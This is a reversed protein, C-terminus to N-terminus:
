KKSKIRVSLGPAAEDAARQWIAKRGEVKLRAAARVKGYAEHNARLVRLKERDAAPFISELQTELELDLNEAFRELLEAYNLAAQGLYEIALDDCDEMLSLDDVILSLCEVAREYREAAFHGRAARILELVGETSAQRNRGPPAPRFLVLQRSTAIRAALKLASDFVKGKWAGQEIAAYLEEMCERYALRESQSPLFVVDCVSLNVGKFEVTGANFFDFLSLGDMPSAGNKSKIKQVVHSTVLIRNREPSIKNAMSQLRAAANVIDGSIDGDRTILLSSYKQGGAIGASIQFVPLPVSAGLGEDRHGASLYEVLRLVAELVDSASAGILIVEDGRVRRCLTGTAAARPIFSQLMGDLSELMAPNHRNAHCFRTYGHIDVLGMYVDPISMQSKLDGAGRYRRDPEVLREWLRPFSDPSVEKFMGWYLRRQLEFVRLVAAQTTANDPLSLVYRKLQNFTQLEGEIVKECLHSFLEFYSTSINYEGVNKM